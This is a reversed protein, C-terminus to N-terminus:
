AKAIKCETPFGVCLFNGDPSVNETAPFVGLGVQGVVQDNESTYKIATGFPRGRGISVCFNKRDPSVAIGHPGSRDIRLIRTETMKERCREKTRLPSHRYPKVLKLWYDKAVSDGRSASLGALLSACAACAILSARRLM